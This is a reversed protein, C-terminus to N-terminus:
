EGRLAALVLTVGLLTLVGVVGCHPFSRRGVLWAPGVLVFRARLLETGLIGAAHLGVPLWLTRGALLYAAGATLGVVFLGLAPQLVPKGPRRAKIFHAASFAASSLVWAAAVAGGPWGRAPWAAGPAAWARLLLELLLGRFVAEEVFALPLPTLIANRLRRRLEQGGGAEQRRVWGAAAQVGCAIAYGCGMVAFGLVLDGARAPDLRPGFYRSPRMGMALPIGLLALAWVVQVLAKNTWRVGADQGRYRLPWHVPLGARRLAWAQGVFLVAYAAAGYTLLAQMPTM